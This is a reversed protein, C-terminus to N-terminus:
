EYPNGEGVILDLPDQWTDAGIVKVQEMEEAGAQDEAMIRRARETDRQAKLELLRPRWVFAAGVIFDAVAGLVFAIAIEM